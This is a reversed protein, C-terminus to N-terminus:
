GEPEPFYIGETIRSRERGGGAKRGGPLLTLSRGPHRVRQRPQEQEEISGNACGRGTHHDRSGVGGNRDKTKGLGTAGPSGNRRESGGEM